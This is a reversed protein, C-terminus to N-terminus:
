ESLRVRSKGAGIQDNVGPHILRQLRTSYDLLNAAGRLISEKSRLSSQKAKAAAIRRFAQARAVFDASSGEKSKAANAVGARKKRVQILPLERNDAFHREAVMM